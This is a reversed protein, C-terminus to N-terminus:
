TRSALVTTKYRSAVARHIASAKVQKTILSSTTHSSNESLLGSLCYNKHDIQHLFLLTNKASLSITNPNLKSFTRSPTEATCIASPREQREMTAGVTPDFGSQSSDVVADRLACTGRGCLRFSKRGDYLRRGPISYTRNLECPRTSVCSM